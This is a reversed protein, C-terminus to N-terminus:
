GPNQQTENKLKELKEKAGAHAPDMTLIKTYENEAKDVYDQRNYLDGLAM